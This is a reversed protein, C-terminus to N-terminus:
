AKLHQYKASLMLKYESNTDNSNAIHGHWDQTEDVVCGTYSVSFIFTLMFKDRFTM